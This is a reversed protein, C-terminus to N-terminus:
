LQRNVCRLCDNVKVSIFCILLITLKTFEQDDFHSSVMGVIIVWVGERENSVFPSPVLLTFGLGARRGAGGDGVHGGAGGMYRPERGAETTM